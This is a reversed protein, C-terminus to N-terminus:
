RRAPLPLQFISKAQPHGGAAAEQLYAMGKQKDADSQAHNLLATGELYRATLRYDPNNAGLRDLEAITQALGDQDQRTIQMVGLIELASLHGQAALERLTKESAALDTSEKALMVQADPSGLDAAKQYHTLMASRHQERKDRELLAQMAHWHGLKLHVAVTEADNQTDRLLSELMTKRKELSDDFDIHTLRAPFYGADAARQLYTRASQKLGHERLEDAASGPKGATLQQWQSHHALHYHAIGTQYLLRPNNPDNALAQVCADRLAPLAADAHYLAPAAGETDLPSRLRDCQALADSEALAAHSAFLLAFVLTKQM